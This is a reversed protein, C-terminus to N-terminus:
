LRWEIRWINGSESTSVKTTRAIIYSSVMVTKSVENKKLEAEAIDPAIKIYYV